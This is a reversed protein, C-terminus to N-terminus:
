PFDEGYDYTMGGYYTRVPVSPWASAKRLAHRDFVRYPRRLYGGDVDYGIEPHTALFDLHAREWREVLARQQEYPLATLDYRRVTEVTGYSPSTEREALNREYWELFQDYGEMTEPNVLQTISGGGNIRMVEKDMAYQMGMVRQKVEDDPIVRVTPDGLLVHAPDHFWAIAEQTLLALKDALEQPVATIISNDIPEWRASYHGTMGYRPRDDLMGNRGHKEAFMIMLQACQKKLEPTAEAYLIHERPAAM